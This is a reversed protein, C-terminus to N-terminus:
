NTKTSNEGSYDSKKELHIVYKFDACFVPNMWIMNLFKQTSKNKEFFEAPTGRLVVDFFSNASFDLKV